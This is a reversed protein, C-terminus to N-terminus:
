DEGEMARRGTSSERKKEQAASLQKQLEEPLTIQSPRRSDRMSRPALNVCGDDVHAHGDDDAQYEQDSEEEDENIGEAMRGSASNLISGSKQIPPVAAAAPAPAPAPAPAEKPAIKASEAKPSLYAAGERVSAERVTRIKSAARHFISRSKSHKMGLVNNWGYAKFKDQYRRALV